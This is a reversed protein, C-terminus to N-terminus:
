DLRLSLSQEQCPEQVELKRKKVSSDAKERSACEQGSDGPNLIALEHGRLEGPESVTPRSTGQSGSAM